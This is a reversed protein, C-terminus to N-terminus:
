AGYYAVQQEVGVVEIKGDLAQQVLAVVTRKNGGVHWDYLGTPTEYQKWDYITAVTGDDFQLVWEATVKDGSGGDKGFVAVLEDYTATVYGQLSTGNSLTYRYNSTIPKVQM